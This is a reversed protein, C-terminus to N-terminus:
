QLSRESQDRVRFQQLYQWMDELHKAQSLGATDTHENMRVRMIRLEDAIFFYVRGDTEIPKWTGGPQKVRPLPRSSWDYRPDSMREASSATVPWSQIVLYRLRDGDDSYGYTISIDTSDLRLGEGSEQIDSNASGTLMSRFLVIACLACVIVLVIAIQPGHQLLNRRKM